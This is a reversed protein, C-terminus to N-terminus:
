KNPQLIIQEFRLLDSESNPNMSCWVFDRSYLRVTQKCGKLQPAIDRLTDYWARQEDRYPPDNDRKDLKQCLERWKEVNFGYDKGQPYHSLAIDRPKTFHQSEDFEVILNQDPIFYDVRPLKKSRVFQNFGRHKQLAEHVTELTDALDTNIYDALRCPLNLDWNDQVKGFLGALMNSVTLKCDRCRENHQKVRILTASM